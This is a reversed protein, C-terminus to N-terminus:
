MFPYFPHFCFSTAEVKLLCKPDILFENFRKLQGSSMKIGNPLPVTLDVILFNGEVLTYFCYLSFDFTFKQKVM